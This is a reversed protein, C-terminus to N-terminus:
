IFNIVEISSTLDIYKTLYTKEEDHHDKYAVFGFKIDKQSHTGKTIKKM